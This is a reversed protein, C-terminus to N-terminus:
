SVAGLVGRMRGRRGGKATFNRRTLHRWRRELLQRQPRFIAARYNPLQASDRFVHNSIPPKLMLTVVAIVHFPNGKIAIDLNGIM